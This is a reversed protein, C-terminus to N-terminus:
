GGTVEFKYKGSVAHILLYGDKEENIKVGKSQALPKGNETVSTATTPLYINADSGAPLTIEYIVKGNEKRWGSEILGYPSEVAAKAYELKRIVNPRITVTRYGPNEATTEIGALGKIFWASIGTYTTHIRSPHNKEWKEPWATEGLELFYGYSPYNTKSLIDSIIEHFLPHELLVKFYQYRSTSGFDFWPHVERMDKELYKLFAPRLSDPVIGAFLSFTTRTQNGTLY